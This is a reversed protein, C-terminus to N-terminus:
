CFAEGRCRELQPRIRATVSEVRRGSVVDHRLRPHKVWLRPVGMKLGYGM